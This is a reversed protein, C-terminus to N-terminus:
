LASCIMQNVSSLAESRLDALARFEDSSFADKIAQASPFKFVSILKPGGEGGLQETVGYRAVPEAGGKILLPVVQSVYEERQEAKGPNPIATVVLYASTDSMKTEKKTQVTLALDFRSGILLSVGSEGVKEAHRTGAAVEIIEGERYTRISGDISYTIDGSLVLLKADFDHAHEANERNADGSVKEGVTYGENEALDRFIQPNM